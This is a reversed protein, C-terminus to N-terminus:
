GVTYGLQKMDAGFRQVLREQQSPSLEEKYGSLSGSRVFRRNPDDLTRNRSREEKARMRELSNNRIAEDVREQDVAPSLYRVLNMFSENPNKRLDEYKVVHLGQTARAARTWYRVHEDWAGFPVAKGELWLEFWSEFDGVAFSRMRKYHHYQSVLVNHPDRVLYVVKKVTGRHM